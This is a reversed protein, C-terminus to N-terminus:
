IFGLAERIAWVTFFGGAIHSVQAQDKPQSSGRSFPIAIRKLIKAHFNGHVSSGPLSCDMADYLTPWFQAAKVENWKVLFDSTPVQLGIDFMLTPSILNFCVFLWSAFLDPAFLYIFYQHM